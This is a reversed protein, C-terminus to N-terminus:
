ALRSGFVTDPELVTFTRGGARVAVESGPAGAEEGAEEAKVVEFSTITLVSDVAIGVVRDGYKLLLLRHDTRGASAQGGAIVGYDFVTIVRGRLGLLGCVDSGCGPIRTIPQPPVIEHVRELRVAYGRDGCAFFAWPADAHTRAGISPDDRAM